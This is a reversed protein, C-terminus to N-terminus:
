AQQCIHCTTVIYCSRVAEGADLRLTVQAATPVYVTDRIAVKIAEGNVKVTLFVHGYLHKPHGDARWQHQPHGILEDSDIKNTANLAQPHMAM